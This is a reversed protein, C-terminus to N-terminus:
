FRRHEAAPQISIGQGTDCGISRILQEDEPTEVGEAVTSIGLVGTMHVIEQMILRVREQNEGCDLAAYDRDLKLEDIKLKGLVTSRQTGSGFDDLSIRFGEQQLQAIKANLEDVNELAMGELIELIIFRAPIQYKEILNRLQEM